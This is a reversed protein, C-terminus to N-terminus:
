INRNLCSLQTESIHVWTPAMILGLAFCLQYSIPIM